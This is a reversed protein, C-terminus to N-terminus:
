ASEGMRAQGAPGAIIVTELAPLGAAEVRVRDGAHVLPADFPTGVLLLDGPLPSMFDAVDAILRDIGRVLRSLSWHHRAEGNIITIIDCADMADRRIAADGLALSGDWALEAIAPRYYSDHPIALDLALRLATPGTVTWQVALTAGARLTETGDPLLSAQSDRTICPGSKVYLVPAVPPKGYPAERLSDGMAAIHAQDNLATGFATGAIM